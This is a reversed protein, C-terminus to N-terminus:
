KKGKTKNQFTFIFYATRLTSKLYPTLTDSSWQLLWWSPWQLIMLPWQLPWYLTMQPTLVPDDSPIMLNSQELSRWILDIYLWWCPLEHDDSPDISSPNKSLIMLCGQCGLCASMLIIMCLYKLFSLDLAHKSTWTLHEFLHSFNSLVNWWLFGNLIHNFKRTKVHEHSLLMALNLTFDPTPLRTSPWSSHNLAHACILAFLMIAILFGKHM